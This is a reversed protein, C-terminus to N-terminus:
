TADHNLLVVRDGLLPLADEMCSSRSTRAARTGFWTGFWSGPVKGAHRLFFMVSRLGHFWRAIASLCPLPRAFWCGAALSRSRWAFTRRRPSSRPIARVQGTPLIVLHRASWWYAVGRSVGIALDQWGPEDFLWSREYDLEVSVIMSRPSGSRDVRIEVVHGDAVVMM